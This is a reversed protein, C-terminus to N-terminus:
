VCSKGQTELFAGNEECSCVFYNWVWCFFQVGGENGWTRSQIRMESEVARTSSSDGAPFSAKM